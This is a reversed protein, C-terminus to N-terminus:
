MKTAGLARLVSPLEGAHDGSSNSFFQHFGGNHIEGIFVNAVWVAKEEPTLSAYGSGNADIFVRAHLLHWLVACAAGDGCSERLAVLRAHWSDLPELEM